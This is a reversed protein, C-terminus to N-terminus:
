DFTFSAILREGEALVYEGEYFSCLEIDDDDEYQDSNITPEKKKTKRKKESHENELSILNVKHMGPVDELGTNNKNENSSDSKEDQEHFESTSAQDITCNEKQLTEEKKLNSEKDETNNKETEKINQHKAFNKVKYINGNILEIMELEIFVELALKVQEKSRSVEIALTDITYPLNRSMFLDGGLNVKAALTLLRTWVYHIMDREPKMDIIKFKTDEYMDTRLKIYRREKM